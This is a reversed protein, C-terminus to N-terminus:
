DIYFKRTFSIPFPSGVPAPRNDLLPQAKIDFRLNERNSVRLQALYYIAGQERIERFELTRNQILDSYIGTVVAAQARDDGDARSRISVNLVMQDAARVLQYAAAIEPRLDTSPFVNYFVTYDGFTKSTEITRADDSTQASVQAIPLLCICCALLRYLSLSVLRRPM